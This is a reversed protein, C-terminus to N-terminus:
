PQNTTQTPEDVARGDSSVPERQRRFRRKTTAGRDATLPEDAAQRDVPAPAPRRGPV